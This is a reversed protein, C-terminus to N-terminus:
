LNIERLRQIEKEIENIVEMNFIEKREGKKISFIIFVKGGYKREFNRHTKSLWEKWKYIEPTQEYSIPKIQLGILKNNIEIYFDVNFKRDLEDSAPKIPVGLINQLKEYITIKETKYGEFTRDIVLNFIYNVCDVENIDNIEAQIIETIKTYLKMGLDELYEQPTLDIGSDKLKEELKQFYFKKWEEINKPNCERIWLSVPGVKERKNLGWRNTAINLIWEKSM